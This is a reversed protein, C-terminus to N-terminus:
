ARGSGEVRPRPALARAFLWSALFAAATGALGALAASLVAPDLGPIAYDPLPAPLATIEAARMAFGLREAVHELGDPWGCAFPAVFLALAAAVCLGIPVLGAARAPPAEEGGTLLDPRAKMVAALVLATIAAEFLGILMHVLAMAPFVVGAPALGSLSLQGAACLAAVVTSCWAGWAAAFLCARPTRGAARFALSYAAYGVAPAIVAMNLLNAGLATLGGDAFLLCQLTLVSAMAVAAAGPGLLVAALTAGLLHGSTGGAVPFNLMQAAFLFAAALGLLPVREPPLARRASRLALGLAAGALVFGAAATKVDLFGDPIHM